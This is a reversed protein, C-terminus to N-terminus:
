GRSPRNPKRIEFYRNIQKLQEQTIGQKEYFKKPPIITYNENLFLTINAWTTKSGTNAYGLARFTKYYNIDTPFKRDFKYGACEYVQMLRDYEEQTKIWVATDKLIILKVNSRKFKDWLKFGSIKAINAEEADLDGNQVAKELIPVLKDLDFGNKVGVLARELNIEMDLDSFYM